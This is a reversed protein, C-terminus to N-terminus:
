RVGAAYVGISLPSDVEVAVGSDHSGVDIHGDHWCSQFGNDIGIANFVLGCGVFYHPADIPQKYLIYLYHVRFRVGNCM